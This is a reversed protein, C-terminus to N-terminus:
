FICELMKHLTHKNTIAKNLVPPPPSPKPGFRICNTMENFIIYTRPVKTLDPVERERERERAREKERVRVCGYVCVYYICVCMCVAIYTCVCICVYVCMCVYMCICVYVCLIYRCRRHQMPRKTKPKCTPQPIICPARAHAGPRVCARVRVFM